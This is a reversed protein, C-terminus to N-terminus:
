LDVGGQWGQWFKFLKSHNNLHHPKSHNENEKHQEISETVYIRTKAIHFFFFLLLDEKVLFLISALWRMTNRSHKTGPPQSAWWLRSLSMSPAARGRGWMLGLVLAPTWLGRGMALNWLAGPLPWVASGSLVLPLRPSCSLSGALCRLLFSPIGNGDLPWAQPIHAQWCPCHWSLNM